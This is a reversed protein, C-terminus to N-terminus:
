EGIATEYIDLAVNKAVNLELSRSKKPERLMIVKNNIVELAYVNNKIDFVCLLSNTETRYATVIKNLLVVKLFETTYNDLKNNGSKTLKVIYADELSIYEEFKKKTVEFQFVYKNDVTLEYVYTNTGPLPFQYKETIVRHKM